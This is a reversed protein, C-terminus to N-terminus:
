FDQWEDQSSHDTDRHPAKQDFESPQGQFFPQGGWGPRCDQNHGFPQGGRMGPRGQFPMHRMAEKMQKKMARREDHSLEHWNGGWQEMMAERMGQMAQFRDMPDVFREAQQQFDAEWGGAIKELLQAFDAQEAESLGNFFTESSAAEKQQTLAAAKQRGTETLYIRKSRKDEPTEIREIEGNNEMKKLLEALSSPRLDLVEALHNQVLGDELALIALVRQQGTLRQKRQSLFANGAESIFRLQKMLDDTTKSM